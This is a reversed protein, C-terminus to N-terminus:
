IEFSSLVPKGNNVLFEQPPAIMPHQIIQPPNYLTPVATPERATRIRVIPQANFGGQVARTLKQASSAKKQPPTVVM